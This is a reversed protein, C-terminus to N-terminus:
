CTQVSQAVPPKAAAPAFAFFVSTGEGPASDVWIRGGHRAMIRECTTLGIGTGSFESMAHFRQFPKFLLEAERSDFGVGNDEICVILELAQAEVRLAIRADERKGTFKWANALLNTLLPRVLGPDARVQLTTPSEFHVQRQSEQDQLEDLIERAIPILDVDKLNLVMTSVRSLAMLDNVLSAM